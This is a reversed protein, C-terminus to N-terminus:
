SDTRHHTTKRKRLSSVNRSKGGVPPASTPTITVSPTISLNSGSSRQSGYIPRNSSGGPTLTAGGPLSSRVPQMTTTSNLSTRGHHSGHHHHNASNNSNQHHHNNSNNNNISSHGSQSRSFQHFFINILVYDITM